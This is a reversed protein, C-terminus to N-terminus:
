KVQERLPRVIQKRQSLLCYYFKWGNEPKDESPGSNSPHRIFKQRLINITYEAMDRYMTLVTRLFINM